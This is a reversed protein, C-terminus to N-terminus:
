RSPRALSGGFIMHVPGDEGPYAAGAGDDNDPVSRGEQALGGNKTQPHQQCLEEHAAIGSRTSSPSKTTRARRTWSGRWTTRPRHPETPNCKPRSM